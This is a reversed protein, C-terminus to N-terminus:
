GVSGPAFYVIGTGSAVEVSSACIYLCCGGPIVVGDVEAKAEDPSVVTTLSTAEYAQLVRIHKGEPPTITGAGDYAECGYGGMGAIASANANAANTRM